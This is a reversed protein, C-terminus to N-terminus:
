DAKSKLIKKLAARHLYFVRADSTNLKFWIDQFNMCSVYRLSLVTKEQQNLPMDEIKNGIEITANIFQERLSVLERESDTIKIALSEVRSKVTSTHPLGDLVPVISEAEARLAQLRWGLDRIKIKLERAKNLEQETM